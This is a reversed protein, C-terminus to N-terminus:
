KVVQPVCRVGSLSPSVLVEAGPGSLDLRVVEPTGDANTVPQGSVDIPFELKFVGPASQTSKARHVLQFLGWPGQFQLAEGSNYALATKAASLGNWTFQQSTGGPAIRQGDVVLSAGEVGKSPIAKLTFSFSPEKAGAPYLSSTIHAARTFFAAFAPTATGAPNPAPFYQNGQQILVPKFTTNYTTWLTGTEPAFIADVDQVTAQTTAGPSFPQKALISGMLKCLQAGGANLVAGPAPVLRGACDIPFKLLATVTKETQFQIDVNFGQQTQTLSNLGSQVLGTIPAFIAPDPSAPPNQAIVAIANSLQGLATM